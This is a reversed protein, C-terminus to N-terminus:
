RAAAVPRAAGPRSASAPRSPRGRARDRRGRGRGPQAIRRGEGVDEAELGREDDEGVVALDHRGLEEVQRVAREVEM